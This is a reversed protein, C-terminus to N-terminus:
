RPPPPPRQGFLADALGVRDATDLKGLLALLRDTMRRDADGRTDSMAALARRVAAEDFPSVGAAAVVAAGATDFARGVAAADRDFAALDTAVRTYGDPTLRAQLRELMAGPGPPPPPSRTWGGAIWGILFLNLAVSAVLAVGRARGGRSRAAEAHPATM